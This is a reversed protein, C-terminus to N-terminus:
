NPARQLFVYAKNSLLYIAIATGIVEQMDSGIIAIETMVWLLLRPLTKYQRYCMEALHLGTVVGLRCIVFVFERDDFPAFLRIFFDIVTRSFTAYSFRFSNGDVVGM